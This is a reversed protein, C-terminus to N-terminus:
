CRRRSCRSGVRSYPTNASTTTPPILGAEISISAAMGRQTQIPRLRVVVVADVRFVALGISRVGDPLTLIQWTHASYQDDMPVGYTEFRTVVPTHM